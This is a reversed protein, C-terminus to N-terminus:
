INKLLSVQEDESTTGVLASDMLENKWAEVDSWWPKFSVSVNNKSFSMIDSDQQDDGDVTNFSFRGDDSQDMSYYEFDSVSTTSDFDFLTDITSDLISDCCVSCLNWSESEEDITYRLYQLWKLVSAEM